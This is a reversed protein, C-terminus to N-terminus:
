NLENGMECKIWPFPLRTSHTCVADTSQSFITTRMCSDTQSRKVQNPKTQNANWKNTGYIRGYLESELEILLLNFTRQERSTYVNCFFCCCCCCSCCQCYFWASSRSSCQYIHPKCVNFGWEAWSFPLWDFQVRSGVVNWNQNVRKLNILEVAVAWGVLSHNGLLRLLHFYTTIVNLTPTKVWSIGAEIWHNEKKEVKKKEM